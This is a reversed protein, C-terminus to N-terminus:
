FKEVPRKEMWEKLKPTAQIKAVTDLVTPFADLFGPFYQTFTYVHESILLDVWTLSDGVFHGNSGNEKAINELITFYKDRAPEIKEKMQSDRDGPELGLHILFPPWIEIEHDRHQDAVADIWAREIASNGAFGFENALYRNIAHSQPLKKGDVELMPVQGFPLSESITPVEDLRYRIDEYPVGALHFLDRAIEARGRLHLYTLKYTPMLLCL